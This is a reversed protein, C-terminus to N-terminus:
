LTEVEDAHPRAPMLPELLRSDSPLRRQLEQLAEATLVVYANMNEAIHHRLFAAGEPTERLWVKGDDFSAPMTELEAHVVVKARAGWLFDPPDARTWRMGNRRAYVHSHRHSFDIVETEKFGHWTSEIWCHFAGGAPNAFAANDTLPVLGSGCDILAMGAVPRYVRNFVVSVVNAGVIAHAHCLSHYAEPYRARLVGSVSAAILSQITQAM